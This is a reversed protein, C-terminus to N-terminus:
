KLESFEVRFKEAIPSPSPPSILIDAVSLILNLSLKSEVENSGPDTPFPPLIMNFDPVISTESFESISVDVNPRPSAPLM